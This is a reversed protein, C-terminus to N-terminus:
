SYKPNQSPTAHSQIPNYSILCKWPVNARSVFFFVNVVSQFREWKLVYRLRHRSRLKGVFLFCRTVYVVVEHHNVFGTYVLMNVQIFEDSGMMSRDIKPTAFVKSIGQATRTIGPGTRAIGLTDQIKWIERNRIQLSDSSYTPCALIEHTLHPDLYVITYGRTILCPQRSFGRASHLNRALFMM